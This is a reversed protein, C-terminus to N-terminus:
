LEYWTEGSTIDIEIPVELNYAFNEKCMIDLETLIQLDKKALELHEKKSDLMISDHVFNILLYKDRNFIAKNRWFKGLMALALIATTGQTKYNMIETPSYQPGKQWDYKPPYKKFQFRQGTFLTYGGTSEVLGKSVAHWTYLRPYEEQRAQILDEVEEKELGSAKATKIVGGGYQQVFTFGKINKRKIQWSKDQKVNSEVIKYDLREALALNKTHLDIGDKIDQIYQPDKSLDAEIRVEISKYDASIIQGDVFRSCFHQKVKTSSSDPQNQINPSRCGLRGTDTQVHSFQAHVCSDLDYVLEETSNYYTSLLKNLERIKLITKIIEITDEQKQEASSKQPNRQKIIQDLKM